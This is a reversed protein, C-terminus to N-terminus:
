AEMKYSFRYDRPSSLEGSVNSNMVYYIGNMFLTNDKIICLVTATAISHLVSKPFFILSQHNNDTIVKSYYRVFRLPNKFNTTLYIKQFYQIIFELCKSTM